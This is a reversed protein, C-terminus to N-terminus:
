SKIAEEALFIKRLHTVPSLSRGTSMSIRWLFAPVTLPPSSITGVPLAPCWQPILVWLRLSPRLSPRVASGPGAAKAISRGFIDLDDNFISRPAPDIAEAPAPGAAATQDKNTPIRWACVTGNELTRLTM